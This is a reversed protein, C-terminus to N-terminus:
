LKIHIKTNMTFPFLVGFNIHLKYGFTPLDFITFVVSNDFALPILIEDSDHYFNERIGYTDLTFSTEALIQFNKAPTQITFTTNFLGGTLINEAYFSNKFFNLKFEQYFSTTHHLPAFLNPNYSFFNMSAYDDQLEVMGARLYYPAEAYGFRVDGAKLSFDELIDLIMLPISHTYDTGFSWENNNNNVQIPKFIQQSLSIPNLLLTFNWSMLFRGGLLELEPYYGAKVAMRYPLKLFAAEFSAFDAISQLITDKSPRLREKEPITENTRQVSERIQIAYLEDIDKFYIRTTSKKISDLPNIGQTEEQKEPELSLTELYSDIYPEEPVEKFSYHEKCYNLVAESYQKSDNLEKSYTRTYM